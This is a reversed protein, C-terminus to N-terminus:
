AVRLGLSSCCPRVREASGSGYFPATDWFNIGLEYAEKIATLAEEEDPTQAADCTGISLLLPRRPIGSHTAACLKLPLSLLASKFTVIGPM